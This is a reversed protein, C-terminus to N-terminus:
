SKRAQRARRFRRPAGVHCGNRVDDDGIPVLLAQLVDDLRAHASPREGVDDVEEILLQHPGGTSASRRPLAPSCTTCRCTTTAPSSSGRRRSATSSARAARFERSRARQTLDGSVVVLDPCAETVARELPSLVAEDIRGFHLDSLHAITRM